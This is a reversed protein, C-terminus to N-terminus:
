RRKTTKGRGRRAGKASARLQGVSAAAATAASSMAELHLELAWEDMRLYSCVLAPLTRPQSDFADASSPASVDGAEDAPETELSPDVATAIPPALRAFRSLLASSESDADTAASDDQGLPLPLSSSTSVSLQVSPFTTPHTHRCHDSIVLLSAADGDDACDALTSSSSAISEVASFPPWVHHQVLREMAALTRAESTPSWVSDLLAAHTAANAPLLHQLFGFGSLAHFLTSTHLTFPLSLGHLVRAMCPLLAATVPGAHGAGSSAGTAASAREDIFSVVETFRQYEHELVARASPLSSSSSSSSTAGSEIQEQQATHFAIQSAQEDVVRRCSLTLEDGVRLSELLPLAFHVRPISEAAAHGRARGRQQDGGGAAAADADADTACCIHLQQLKMRGVSEDVNWNVVSWEIRRLWFREDSLADNVRTALAADLHASALERSPHLSALPLRLPVIGCGGGDGGDDDLWSAAVTHTPHASSASDSIPLVTCRVEEVEWQLAALQDSLLPDACASAAAAGAEEETRHATMHIRQQYARMRRQLCRQLRATLRQEEGSM